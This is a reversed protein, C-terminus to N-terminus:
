SAPIHLLQDLPPQTKICFSSISSCSQATRLASTILITSCNMDETLASCIGVSLCSSIKYQNECFGILCAEKVLDTAGSLTSVTLGMMFATLAKADVTFGCLIVGHKLVHCPHM